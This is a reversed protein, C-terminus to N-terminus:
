VNELARLIKQARASWTYSAVLERAHAVKQPSASDELAAGIARALAEADDPPVFYASREDLVERISPLDSAVIPRGSAMYTFLKLPSTFRASVEDRGTNPLVLVDAAAQNGALERYPRFGLFRARPYKSRLAEVQAHEGGIIVVQIDGPLLASSKLLTESGKWGDLRGIYMAIKKGAPLGLRKRADEKSGPHAFDDLDIGDAAVLIKQAPIDKAIYLNKLGQSITVLMHAQASVKRAAANWVGTHSEWVRRGQVRALVQEDRGYLVDYERHKLYRRVARAFLLSEFWFGFAGYRVTDIVPLRTIVFPVKVGYYEHPSEQIPNKRGPVLLEVEVGSRVFAECTKMIQIGHAKETPMRVNAVYVLKKTM